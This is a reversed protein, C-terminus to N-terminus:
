ITVVLSHHRPVGAPQDDPVAAVGSAGDSSGALRGPPRPEPPDFSGPGSTPPGRTVPFPPVAEPGTDKDTM